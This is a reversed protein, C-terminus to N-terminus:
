VGGDLEVGRDREVSGGERRLEPHCIGKTAREM